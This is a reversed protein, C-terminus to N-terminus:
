ASLFHFSTDNEWLHLAKRQLLLILKSKINLLYILEKVRAIRNKGEKKVKSSFKLAM